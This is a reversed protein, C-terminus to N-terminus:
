RPPCRTSRCATSCCACTRSRTSRSASRASRATRSRRRRLRPGDPDAPRLGGLPRRHRQRRAAQLARQVGQRHRLRRVAADDVAPRHVDVPLRGPHLPVGGAQRAADGPRLGRASRATSPSSRSDPSPATRTARARHQRRHPSRRRDHGFLVARGGAAAGHSKGRWPGGTSRAQRSRRASPEVARPRAPDARSPSSSPAPRAPGPGCPRPPRASRRPTCGCRGRREVLRPLPVGLGTLAAARPGSCPRAPAPSPCCRCRPGAWSRRTGPARRAAAGTGRRAGRARSRSAPITTSPLVFRLSHALM